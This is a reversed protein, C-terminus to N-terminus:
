QNEVTPVLPHTKKDKISVHCACYTKIFNEFSLSHWPSQPKAHITTHLSRDFPHFHQIADLSTTGDIYTTLILEQTPEEDKFNSAHDSQMVHKAVVDVLATKVSLSQPLILTDDQLIEKIRQLADESKITQPHALVSVLITQALAETKKSVEVSDMSHLSLSCFLGAIFLAKM